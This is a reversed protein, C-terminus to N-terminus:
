YNKVTCNVLEDPVLFSVHDYRKKKLDQQMGIWTENPSSLSYMRRGDSSYYGWGGILIVSNNYEVMASRSIVRPLEPGRQWGGSNTDDDNLFLLEVSKLPGNRSMGGTTLKMLM